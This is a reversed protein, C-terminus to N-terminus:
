SFPLTEEVGLHSYQRLKNFARLMKAQDSPSLGSKRVLDNLETVSMNLVELESPYEFPRDFSTPTSLVSVINRIWQLVRMWVYRASKQNFVSLITNLIYITFLFVLFVVRM